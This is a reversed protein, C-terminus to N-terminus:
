RKLYQQFHRYVCYVLDVLTMPLSLLKNDTLVEYTKMKMFFKHYFIRMNRGRVTWICLMPKWPRRVDMVKSVWENSSPHVLCYQTMRPRLWCPHHAVLL